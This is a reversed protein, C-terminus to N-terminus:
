VRRFILANFLIFFVQSFSLSFEVLEIFRESSLSIFCM